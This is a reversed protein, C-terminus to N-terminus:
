PPAAYCAARRRLSALRGAVDNFAYAFLLIIVPEMPHRHKPFAAVLYYVLPFVVLPVCLPASRIGLRRVALVCGVWAGLSVPLWLGFTGEWPMTWFLWVRRLTRRLFEGPFHRIYNVVQARKVRMYGMEGLRLYESPNAMPFSSYDAVADGLGEHNAYYIEAPLDSRIFVFQGFAIYNRVLWPSVTLTFAIVSFALLRARDAVAGGQRGLLCLWYTLGISMFSPNILCTAAWFVGLAVWHWRKESGDVVLWLWAGLTLLLAAISPETTVLPFVALYPWVAWIWGAMTGVSESFLRKGLAYIVLTTFSAFAVNLLVVIWTSAPSEFGFWRFLTALFLPYGPAFWATPGHTGEYAGGFGHGALLSTAIAAYESKGWLARLSYRHMGDWAGSLRAALAVAFMLAPSTLLANVTSFKTRGRENLQEEKLEAGPVFTSDPRNM